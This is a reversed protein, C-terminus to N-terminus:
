LEMERALMVAGEVPARRLRVLSLSRGIALQDLRESLASEFIPSVQWLGGALCIQIARHNPLHKEAHSLVSNALRDTETILFDLAFPENNATAKAFQPAFRALKGAIPGRRYLSSIIESENESGFAKQLEAGIEQLRSQEMFYRVIERGYRYASGYDGLVFGRGGSKAFGGNMKSCVLSGTGAIVCIDTGDPSAALAAAYDPEFRLRAKPLIADFLTKAHSRDTDTLLGALCLCAANPPPCGNLAKEINSVFEQEPTSAVNAAGSQGRFM